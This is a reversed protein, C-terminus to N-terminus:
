HSIHTNRHAIRNDFWRLFFPLNLSGCAESHGEPILLIVTSVPVTIFCLLGLPFGWFLLVTKATHSFPFSVFKNWDPFASVGGVAIHLVAM